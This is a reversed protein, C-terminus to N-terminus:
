ALPGTRSECDSIYFDRLMGADGFSASELAGSWAGSSDDYYSQAWATEAFRELQRMAEEKQVLDRTALYVRQWSCRWYLHVVATAVSREIQAGDEVAPPDAPFVVGGPMEESFEDVASDYLVAYEAEGVFRQAQASGPAVGDCGTLMPLSVLFVTIAIGLMRGKLM